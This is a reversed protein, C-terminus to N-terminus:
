NMTNSKNGELFTLLLGLSIIKGLQDDRIMSIDTNGNIINYKIMQNLSSKTVELERVKNFFNNQHYKEAFFTKKFFRQGLKKTLRKSKDKLYIVRDKLLYKSESSISMGGETTEIRAVEANTRTIIERHFNNFFRKIRPLHYGYRVLDIELLPAYSNIYNTSITILRGAHTQMKFYYYIKDYTKTNQDAIFQRLNELTNPVFQSNAIKFEDSLISNAIKIPAIRTNFLREINSRSKSYSPFDQLWWFDKFLEGGVGSIILNIDRKKRDQHNKFASYTNLVDYLGDCFYFLGNIKESDLYAERSTIQLPRNISKAVKKAIEIDPDGDSGAVSTEFELHNHSLLTVMIRSDIGGTLDVSLKNNKLSLAMDKFYNLFDEKNMINKSVDLAALKKNIIKMDGSSSFLIIEDFHIKKITDFFTRAQHIAGLNLFEIVANVNLDDASLNELKVLDLFSTSIKDFSYFVDFVGSNDIFCYNTNTQKSFISIFYNGKLKNISDELKEVNLNKEFEIISERGSSIGLIYVLGRWGIIYDGSEYFQESELDRQVIGDKTILL